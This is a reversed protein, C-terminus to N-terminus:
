FHIGTQKPDVTEGLLETLSPQNNFYSFSKERFGIVRDWLQIDKSQVTVRKGHIAIENCKSFMNSLFLEASEQLALIATSQFKYNETKFLTQVIERVLRQFPLQRILLQTSKQYKRIERLAVTGPRYRRKKRVNGKPKRLTFIKKGDGTRQRSTTKTRTM